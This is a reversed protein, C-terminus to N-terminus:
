GMMRLSKRGGKDVGPVLWFCGSDVWCGARFGVRGGFGWSSSGLVPRRRLQLSLENV